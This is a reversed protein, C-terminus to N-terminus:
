RKYHLSRTAQEDTVKQDLKSEKRQEEKHARTALTDYSLRKRESAQWAGRENSIKQQALRVAQQQGEIANDLKELFMQYNRYGMMSLGEALGSQFRAAYEERYQMLLALKKETEDSARIALGLRKAAEDSDRAALEILTEIASPHTM